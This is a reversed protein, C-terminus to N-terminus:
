FIRVVYQISLDLNSLIYINNCNNLRLFEYQLLLIWIIILYSNQYLSFNIVKLCLYSFLINLLIDQLNVLNNTYYIKFSKDRAISTNITQNYIIIIFRFRLVFSNVFLGNENNIANILLFLTDILIHVYSFNFQFLNNTSIFLIFGFIFKSYIKDRIKQKFLFLYFQSFLISIFIADVAAADGVIINIKNYWFLHIKNPTTHCNRVYKAISTFIYLVLFLQLIHLPSLPFTYSLDDVNFLCIVIIHQTQLRSELHQHWLLTFSHVFSCHSQIYKKLTNTQFKFSYFLAAQFEM